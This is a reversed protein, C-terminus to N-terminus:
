TGGDGLVGRDHQGGGRLYITKGSALDLLASADFVHGTIV